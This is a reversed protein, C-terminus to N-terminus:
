NCRTKIKIKFHMHVAATADNTRVGIGYSWRKHVGDLTSAEKLFQDSRNNKFYQNLDKNFSDSSQRVGVNYLYTLAGKSKDHDNLFTFIKLQNM